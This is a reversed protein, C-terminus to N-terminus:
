SLLLNFSQIIDHTNDISGDNTIILEFDEFTQNLISSISQAIYNASNYAPMLVSIAPM